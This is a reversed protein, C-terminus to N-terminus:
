RRSYVCVLRAGSLTAISGQPPKILLLVVPLLLIMLRRTWASPSTVFPELLGNIRGLVRVMFVLVLVAWRSSAEKSAIPQAM